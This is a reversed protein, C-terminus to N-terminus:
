CRLVRLDNAHTHQQLTPVVSKSNKESGILNIYKESIVVFRCHRIDVAASRCGCYVYSRHISVTVCVCACSAIAAYELERTESADCNDM